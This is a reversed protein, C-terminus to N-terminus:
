TNMRNIIIDIYEEYNTGAIKLLEIIRKSRNTEYEEKSEEKKNYKSMIKNITEKDDLLEKVRSLILPNGKRQTESNSCCKCKSGFITTKM